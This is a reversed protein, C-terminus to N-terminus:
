REWNPLSRMADCTNLYKKPNKKHQEAYEMGFEILQHLTQGITLNYEKAYQDILNRTHEDVNRITYIKSM